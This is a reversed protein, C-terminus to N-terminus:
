RYVRTKAAGTSLVVEPVPSAFVKNGGNEHPARNPVGFSNFNLEPPLPYTEGDESVLSLSREKSGWTLLGQDYYHLHGRYLNAAHGV